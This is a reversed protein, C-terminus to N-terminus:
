TYMLVAQLGPRSGGRSIAYSMCGTSRAGQPNAALRKM